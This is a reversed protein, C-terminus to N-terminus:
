KRGRDRVRGRLFRWLHSTWASSGPCHLTRAMSHNVGQSEEGECEKNHYPIKWIFPATLVSDPFDPGVRAPTPHLSGWLCPREGLDPEKRVAASAMYSSTLRQVNQPSGLATNQQQRGDEFGGESKPCIGKERQPKEIQTNRCDPLENGCM